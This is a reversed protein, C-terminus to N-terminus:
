PWIMQGEVYAAFQQFTNKETIGYRNVEYNSHRQGAYGQNTTFALLLGAEKAAEIYAENYQGYPYALSVANPVQQLNHQLDGYIEDASLGIGLGIGSRIEHLSHTHAEFSFVDQLATFDELTLYQMSGAANFLQQGGALATRISIVHQLANFGYQQFMPYVYEKSSLLGDDFTIVVAENPVALRGELYDYLENATLTTFKRAALYDMQQTFNELSVTSMETQMQARPVVHHYLLVPLGEDPVVDDKKVYGPREGIKIVYWEDDEAAVPYRYGQELVAMEASNESDEEYVATQILTKVAGARETNEATRLTAKKVTESGKQIFVPMKGLSIEYYDEDEHLVVAQQGAQLEGIRVPAQQKMYMAKPEDFSVVRKYKQMSIFPESGVAQAHAIPKQEKEALPFAWKLVAVILVILLGGALLRTLLRKKM